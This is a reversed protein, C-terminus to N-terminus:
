QNSLRIIINNYYLFPHRIKRNKKKRKKLYKKGHSIINPLLTADVCFLFVLCFMIYVNCKGVRVPCDLNNKFVSGFV